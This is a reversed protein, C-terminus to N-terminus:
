LLSFYLLSTASLSKSFSLCCSFNLSTTMKPMSTLWAVLSNASFNTSKLSFSKFSSDPTLKISNLHLFPQFFAHLLYQHFSLLRHIFYNNALHSLQSLHDTMSILHVLLVHPTNLFHSILNHPHESVELTNIQLSLRHSPKKGALIDIASDLFQVILDIVESTFM